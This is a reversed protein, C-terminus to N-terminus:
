RGLDDVFGLFERKDDCVRAYELLLRMVYILMDERRLVKEAWEKGAMAIKRAVEDHSGEYNGEENKVGMFYELVGYFDVFSNDMPVFHLWPVLRSDHWEAYITAKIPLSTSQLFGWYRGSFSNGDVDPLFKYSYMDKMKMKAVPSYWPDSYSCKENGEDPFCVLSIFGADVVGKLWSGLEYVKTKLDYVKYFGLDFTQGQGPKEPNREAVEVSTGNVMELFRHRQFRRWNERKNRGGSAMGRWVAMNKKKEWPGGHENDGGTYLERHSWYMAPPILIENNMPLKSGGFMPFLTHTTSQSIPEVFSGHTERLSPQLCPDKAQTWNQVYGSFSNPPFTTPVSPPPGSFDTVATINHAPSDPPCGIRAIDWYVGSKIFDLDVPASSNWTDVDRLGTFKSLVDKADPLHRSQREKSVCTNIEEWPVIVRPEDMVNIPVDVDPLWKEITQILNHWLDMWERHTDTKFTATGNRVSVVQEFTNAQRRITKAEVGWFPTLDHYIQDFFDEVMVAGNEQAYQFWKDFGPPPHRGRRERYAKTASKLDLTEKAMLSHFQIEARKLLVDIPHPKTNPVPFHHPTSIGAANRPARQYIWATGTLICFLGLLLLLRLLIHPSFVRSPLTNTFAM